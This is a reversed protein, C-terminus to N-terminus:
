YVLKIDPTDTEYNNSYIVLNGDLFSFTYWSYSNFDDMILEEWNTSIDKKIYVRFVSGAPMYQYINNITITSWWADLAWAQNTFYVENPTGSIQGVIVTCTDKDTFGAADQVFLEFQYVGIQLNSVKTLLSDPHEILFSSPGSIKSWLITQINNELDQAVGNLTCFSVPDFVFKDTGANCNPATNPTAGGGGVDEVGEGQCTDCVGPCTDCVKTCGNNIMLLIAIALLPLLNIPRM